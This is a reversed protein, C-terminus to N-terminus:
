AAASRQPLCQAGPYTYPYDEGRWVAEVAARREAVREWYQVHQGVLPRPFWIVEDAVEDEPAESLEPWLVPAPPIPVPATQPTIEQAVRHRGHTKVSHRGPAPFLLALVWELARLICERM